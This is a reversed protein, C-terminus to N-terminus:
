AGRVTVGCQCPGSSEVSRNVKAAAARVFGAILRSSAGSRSRTKAASASGVRRAIRVASNAPSRVTPSSAAGCAIDSAAIELCM